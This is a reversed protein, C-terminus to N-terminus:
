FRVEAKNANDGVVYFKGQYYAVHYNQNGRKADIVAGDPIDGALAAAVWKEVEQARKKDNASMSGAAAFLGAGLPMGIITSTFFGALSYLTAKTAQRGHGTPDEIEEYAYMQKGNVMVTLLGQENIKPESGTYQSGRFSENYTAWKEDQDPTVGHKDLYDRDKENQKDAKIQELNNMLFNSQSKLWNYGDESLSGRMGEIIDDFEQANNYRENELTILLMDLAKDQASTRKMYEDQKRTYATEDDYRADGIADRYEAYKQLMDKWDWEKAAEGQQFARQELTLEKKWADEGRNYDREDAYREDAVKDRGEQYNRNYYKDNIGMMRNYFDDIVSFKDTSYQQLLAQNQASFNNAISARNAMYSNNANVMNTGAQGTSLGNALQSQKLYKSIKDHSISAGQQASTQAKALGSQATALNDAMLRSKEDRLYANLGVEYDQESMGEPRAAGTKYMELMEEHTM